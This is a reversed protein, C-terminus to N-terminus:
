SSRPLVRLTPSPRRPLLPQLATGCKWVGGADFVWSDGPQADVPITAGFQVILTGNTAFSSTTTMGTLVVSNSLVAPDITANACAGECRTQMTGTDVTWGEPVTVQLTVIKGKGTITGGNIMALVMVSTGPGVIEPTVNLAVGTDGTTTVVVVSAQSTRPEDGGDVMATVEFDYQTGATADNPVSYAITLLCGGSGVAFSGTVQRSAADWTACLSSLSDITLGSTVSISFSGSDADSANVTISVSSSGAPPVARLPPNFDISEIASASFDTEGTPTTSAEPSGSLESTATASPAITASADSTATPAHLIPKDPVAETAVPSAQQVGVEQASLNGAPLLLALLLTFLAIRGFLGRHDHM